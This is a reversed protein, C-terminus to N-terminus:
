EQDPRTFRRGDLAPNLVVQEVVIKEVGEGGSVATELLHPIMVGAEAHFDKFTTWVPRLRGDLKRTGDVKVDLNTQKDIWVHRAQGDAATVELKWADRGEVAESGVLAVRSGKAAYDVLPGDLESEQAAIRLEEPTFPEPDAHGLFPRVKWGREGDYVQVATQGRFVVEVRSRHPRALDMVFPLKVNPAPAVERARVPARRAAAARVDRRAEEQFSRALKVPDRPRGAELSGRLELTRVARWAALGGRAAVNREVIRAAEREARPRFLGARAALALAAAGTLVVAAIRITRSM